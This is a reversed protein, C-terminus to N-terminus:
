YLRYPLHEFARHVELLKAKSYSGACEIYVEGVDEVLIADPRKVGPGFRERLVDEHHWREIVARDVKALGLLIAAVMVDHQTETARLPRLRGGIRLRPGPFVLGTRRPPDSFRSKARWALRGFDPEDEGPVWNLLPSTVPLEPHLMATGLRVGGRAALARLCSM